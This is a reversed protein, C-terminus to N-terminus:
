GYAALKHANEPTAFEIIFEIFTYEIDNVWWARAGDAFEIAPGDLRHLKGNVRWERTGNAYTTATPTTM